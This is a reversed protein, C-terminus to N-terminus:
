TGLKWCALSEPNLQTMNGRLLSSLDHAINRYVQILLSVLCPPLFLGLLFSPPWLFLFWPYFTALYLIHWLVLSLFSQVGPAVYCSQMDGILIAWLSGLMRQSFPVMRNETCQLGVSVVASSDLEQCQLLSSLPCRSDTSCGRCCGPRPGVQSRSGTNNPNQKGTKFSFTQSLKCLGYVQEIWKHKM